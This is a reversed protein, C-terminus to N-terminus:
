VDMACEHRCKQCCNCLSDSDDNIEEAYPCSHDPEGTEGCKCVPDPKLAPGAGEVQAEVEATEPIPLEATLWYRAIPTECLHETALDIFDQDEGHKWGEAVWNGDETMVVAIRVRVTKM